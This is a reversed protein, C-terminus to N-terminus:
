VHVWTQPVRSHLHGQPLVNYKFLDVHFVESCNGIPVLVGLKMFTQRRSVGTSPVDLAPSILLHAPWAQKRQGWLVCGMEEQIQPM